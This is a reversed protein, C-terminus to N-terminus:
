LSYETLPFLLTDKIENSRDIQCHRQVHMKSCRNNMFDGIRKPNMAEPKNIMTISRKGSKADITRILNRDQLLIVLFFAYSQGTCM